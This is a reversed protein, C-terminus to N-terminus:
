LQNKEAEQQRRRLLTPKLRRKYPSKQRELQNFCIWKMNQQDYAM